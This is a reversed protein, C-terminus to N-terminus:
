KLTLIWVVTNFTRTQPKILVSPSPSEGSATLLSLSSQCIKVSYPPLRCPAQVEILLGTGLGVFFFVFSTSSPYKYKKALLTTQAYECFLHSHIWFLLWFSDFLLANSRNTECILNQCCILRHLLPRNIIEKNFNQKM